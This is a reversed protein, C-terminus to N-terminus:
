LVIVILLSPLMLICPGTAALHGPEPKGGASATGEGGDEGELKGFVGGTESRGVRDGESSVSTEEPDDTRLGPRTLTLTRPLIGCGKLSGNAQFNASHKYLNPSPKWCCHIMPSNTERRGYIEGYEEWSPDCVFDPKEYEFIGQYHSYDLRQTAELNSSPSKLPATLIALESSDKAGM